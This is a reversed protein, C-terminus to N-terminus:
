ELSGGRGRGPTVPRARAARAGKARAPQVASATRGDHSRRTATTPPLALYRYLSSRSIGLTACIVATATGEKHLTRALATKEEDLVRPRGGKRGRARAAALGANTRERIIDREFEALAGFVHFVLKGGSTRTDLSEQLSRFGVKRAHLSRVSEILHALSRGLRDLKWVVITDGRRVFEIAKALGPREANAGSAVDTFIRKCGAKKLADRQLHLSQDATSVRAYGVLM